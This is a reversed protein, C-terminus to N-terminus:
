LQNNYLRIKFFQFPLIEIKPIKQSINKIMETYANSIM